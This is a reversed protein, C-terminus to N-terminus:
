NRNLSLFVLTDMKGSSNGQYFNDGNICKITLKGVEDSYKILRQVNEKPEIALTKFEISNEQNKNSIMYKQNPKLNEVIYKSNAKISFESVLNGKEDNLKLM